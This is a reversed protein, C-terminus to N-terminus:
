YSERFEVDVEVTVNSRSTAAASDYVYGFITWSGFINTLPAALNPFSDAWLTETGTPVVASWVGCEYRLPDSSTGIKTYSDELLNATLNGTFLSWNLMLPSNPSSTTASPSYRTVPQYLLSVKRVRYQQFLNAFSTFSISNNVLETNVDFSVAGISGAPM